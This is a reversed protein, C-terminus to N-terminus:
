RSVTLMERSKQRDRSSCFIKTNLTKCFCKLHPVFFKRQNQPKFSFIYCFIRYFLTHNM